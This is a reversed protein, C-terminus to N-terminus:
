NTWWTDKQGSVATQRVHFYSIKNWKSMCGTYLMLLYQSLSPIELNRSFQDSCMFLFSISTGVGWAFSGEQM